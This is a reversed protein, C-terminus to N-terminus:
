ARKLETEGGTRLDQDCPILPVLSPCPIREERRSPCQAYVPCPVRVRIDARSPSGRSNERRRYTKKLDKKRDPFRSSPDNSARLDFCLRSPLRTRKPSSPPKHKAYSFGPFTRSRSSSSHPPHISSHRLAASCERPNYAPPRTRSIGSPQDSPLLTPLITHTPCIPTVCLYVCLYVCVSLFCPVRISLCRLPPSDPALVSTSVLPRCAPARARAGDCQQYLNRDM